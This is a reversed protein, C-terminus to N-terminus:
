SSHISSMAVILASMHVVFTECNEHMAAKAFKRKDILEMQSTTPLTEAATYTRWTFKEASFQLDANSLALFLMGLIVEMSTNALMFTGEFFRITGLSDQLLFCTSVMDYTEPPSGDIKQGGVSTKRTTLGLEAAYVPTIANVESGSDILAIIAILLAM